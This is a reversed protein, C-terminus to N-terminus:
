GGRGKGRLRGKREGIDKKSTKRYGRIGSVRVVGKAQSRELHESGGEITLFVYL